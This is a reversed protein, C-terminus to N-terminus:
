RAETRSAIAAENWRSCEHNSALIQHYASEESGSTSFLVPYDPEDFTAAAHALERIKEDPYNPDNTAAFKKLAEYIGLESLGLNRCQGAMSQLYAWLNEGNIEM